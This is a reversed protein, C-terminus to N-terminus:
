KDSSTKKDKGLDFQPPSAQGIGKDDLSVTWLTRESPPTLELEGDGRNSRYHVRLYKTAANGRGRVDLRYCILVGASPPINGLSIPSGTEALIRLDTLPIDLDNKLGLFYASLVSEGSERVVQESTRSRAERLCENDAFRVTGGLKALAGGVMKEMDGIAEPYVRYYYVEVVPKKEQNYKIIALLSGVIAAIGGLIGGIWTVAPPIRRKEKDRGKAKVRSM